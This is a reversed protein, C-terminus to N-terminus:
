PLNMKQFEKTDPLHLQFNEIPCIHAAAKVIKAACLHGGYEKKEDIFHFHYGEVNLSRLYSPFRLGLITGRAEQLSTESVAHPQSQFPRFPAKQKLVSRIKVEQFKGDIRFAHIYNKTKLHLSLEKELNQVSSIQQLPLEKIKQFFLVNSFPTKMQLSPKTVRGNENTQYFQGDLLILEGDLCNYTGIGFDGHSLLVQLETDGEYLCQLFSPLTGTQFLTPITHHMPQRKKVRIFTACSKPLNAFYSVKASKLGTTHLSFQM